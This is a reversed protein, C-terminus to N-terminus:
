LAPFVLFEERGMATMTYEGRTLRQGNVTVADFDEESFGFRAVFKLVDDRNIESHRVGIITVEYEGDDTDNWQVRVLETASPYKLLDERTRSCTPTGEKDFKMCALGLESEILALANDVSLPAEV